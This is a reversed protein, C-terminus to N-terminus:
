AHGLRGLTHVSKSTEASSLCSLDPQIVQMAAGAGSQLVMVFTLWMGTAFLLAALWLCLIYAAAAATAITAALGSCGKTQAGACM